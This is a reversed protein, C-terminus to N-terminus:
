CLFSPIISTLCGFHRNSFHLFLGLKLESLFDSDSNGSKTFNDMTHSYNGFVADLTKYASLSSNYDISGNNVKDVEQYLNSNYM